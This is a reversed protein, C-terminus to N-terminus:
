VPCTLRSASGSGNTSRVKRRDDSRVHSSDNGGRQHEADREAHLPIGQLPIESAKDPAPNRESERTGLSDRRTGDVDPM